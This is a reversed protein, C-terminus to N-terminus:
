VRARPLLPPPPSGAHPPPPRPRLEGTGTTAAAATGPPPAARLGHERCRQHGPASSGRARARARPPPPWPSGRSPTSGHPHSRSATVRCAPPSCHSSAYFLLLLLWWPLCPAHRCGHEDLARRFTLSFLTTTLRGFTYTFTVM